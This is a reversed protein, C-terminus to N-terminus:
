RTFLTNNEELPSFAKNQANQSHKTEQMGYTDHISFQPKQLISISKDVDVAM